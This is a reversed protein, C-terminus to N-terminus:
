HESVVARRRWTESGKWLRRTHGLIGGESRNEDYCLGVAGFETPKQLFLEENYGFGSKYSWLTQYGCYFLDFQILPTWFGVHTKIFPIHCIKPTSRNRLVRM